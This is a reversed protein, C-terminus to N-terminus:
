RKLVGVVYKVCKEIRETNKVRKEMYYKCDGPENIM